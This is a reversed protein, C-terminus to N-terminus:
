YVLHPESYPRFNDIIFPVKYKSVYLKEDYVYLAEFNAYITEPIDHGGRNIMSKDWFSGSWNGNGNNNLTTEYPKGDANTTTGFRSSFNVKISLVNENQATANLVIREGPWFVNKYRLKPKNYQNLYQTDSINENSTKDYYYLNFLNRKEEWKSTHDIEGTLTTFDTIRFTFEKCKEIANKVEYDIAYWKVKFVGIENPSKFSRTGSGNLIEENGTRILKSGKYLVYRTKILDEDSDEFDACIDIDMDPRQTFSIPVIKNGSKRYPNITPSQNGPLITVAASATFFANGAKKGWVNEHSYKDSSHGKVPNNDFYTMNLTPTDYCVGFATTKLSSVEDGFNPNYYGFENGKNFHLLKTNRYCVNSKWGNSIIVGQKDDIDKYTTNSSISIKQTTGAYYADQQVKLTSIGSVKIVPRPKHVFSVFPGFTRGYQPAKEHSTVTLKLDIYDYERNKQNWIKLNYAKIGFSTGSKMNELSFTSEYTSNAHPNFSNNLKGEGFSKYYTKNNRTFIMNKYSIPFDFGESIIAGDKNKSVTWRGSMTTESPKKFNTTNIIAYTMATTAFVLVIIIFTKKRIYNM